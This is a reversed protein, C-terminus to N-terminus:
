GAFLITCATFGFYLSGYLVMPLDDRASGNVNFISCFFKRAGIDAIIIIRFHCSLDIMRVRMEIPQEFTIIVQIRYSVVASYGHRNRASNMYAEALVVMFRHVNRSGFSGSIRCPTKTKIKARFLLQRSCVLAAKVRMKM